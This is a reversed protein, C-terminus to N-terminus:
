NSESIVDKGDSELSRFSLESDSGSISSSRARSSTVSEPVNRSSNSEAQQRAAVEKKWQPPEPMLPTEAEFLFYEFSDQDDLRVAEGDMIGHVYSYRTLSPDNAVTRM